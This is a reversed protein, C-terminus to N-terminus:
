GEALQSRYALTSYAVGFSDSLDFEPQTEFILIRMLAMHHIAHELVYFLERSLSSNFKMPADSVSPLKTLHVMSRDLELLNIQRIVADIIEVAKGATDEITINRNRADYNVEDKGNLLCLYFELTHRAHQGVSAKGKSNICTYNKVDLRSIVDRLSSLVQTNLEKLAKINTDIVM